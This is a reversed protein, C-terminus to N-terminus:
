TILQQKKELIEKHQSCLQKFAGISTCGKERFAKRMPEWGYTNQIERLDEIAFMRANHRLHAYYKISIFWRILKEKVQAETM